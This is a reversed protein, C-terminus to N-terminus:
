LALPAPAKWNPHVISLSIRADFDSVALAFSDVGEGGTAAGLKTVDFVVCDRPAVPTYVSDGALAPSGTPIASLAACAVAARRRRAMLDASTRM